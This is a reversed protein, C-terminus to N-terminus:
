FDKNLKDAVFITNRCTEAMKKIKFGQEKFLSIGPALSEPSALGVKQREVFLTRCHQFSVVGLTIYLYLIM